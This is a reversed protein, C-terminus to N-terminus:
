DTAERMRVFAAGFAAWTLADLPIGAVLGEATWQGLSVLLWYLALAGIAASAPQERLTRVVASRLGSAYLAVLLAFGVIGLDALSQVYINQIGYTQSESPFAIPAVHPFRRHAAPLEPRIVPFDNSAEWGAGVVPHHLWIRFGIYALLTRQSYTQVNTSTASSTHRVGLFDFFHGFDGARLTLVGGVAVVTAAACAVLARRDARGRVLAAAVAVAMALLLGIISASSGALVLGVTGTVLAIWAGTRLRGETRWLLAVAGIGVTMGALGAFDEVGIFSPQRHGQGWSGIIDWGAWQLAAVFTAAVSWCVLTGAVVLADARRRILLAISPALLAYEAFEAATVLHTKWPYPTSYALPYLTAAGIWALFAIGSIWVPLGPRLGERSLSFLAAVAVAVVALDSLKVTVSTGSLTLHAAPQYDVHLFLIPLAAALLLAGPSVATLRRM